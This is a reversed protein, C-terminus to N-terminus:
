NAIMVAHEPVTPNPLTTTSWMTQSMAVNLQVIRNGRCTAIVTRRQIPPTALFQFEIILSAPTSILAFPKISGVDQVNVHRAHHTPVNPTRMCTPVCRLVNHTTLTPKPPQIPAPGRITAVSTQNMPRKGRRNPQRDATPQLDHDGKPLVSRANNPMMANGIPKLSPRLASVHIIAGRTANRM